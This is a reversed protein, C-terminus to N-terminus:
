KKVGLGLRDSSYNHDKNNEFYWKVTKKIGTKFSEEPNWNLERQIKSSDIAYRQDHGPRDEVFQILEEHKSFRSPLNTVLDDLVACIEKVVELNTKECNGGVNYSEGIEGKQFIDVLAKVHDEVFLWDRIQDGKGYIPLSEGKLAKTIVLPILKETFQFPGYNNSCNSLLVPLGYTRNWSRVLHDSSAKSASYPSSPDYPTLESFPAENKELDGFVEDTSVHHFRFIKKDQDKISQWYKLSAQLLSFTGIINSQVFSEPGDISRDVHTEAALNIVINPKFDKLIKHISDENCIDEKEFSFLPNNSVEQLSELNSAYSLKDLCLVEYELEKIIYRILASGIFGAGGAVLIKL